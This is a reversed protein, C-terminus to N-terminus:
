DTAVPRGLVADVALDALPRLAAPDASARQM